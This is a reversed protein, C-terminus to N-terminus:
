FIRGVDVGSLQDERLGAVGAHASREAGSRGRAESGPRGGPSARPPSAPGPSFTRLAPPVQARAPGGRQAASLAAASCRLRGASGARGSCSARRGLPGPSVFAGPRLGARPRESRSPGGPPPPPLRPRRRLCEIFPRARRAPPSPAARVGGFNAAQARRLSPWRPGRRVLAGGSGCGPRGLLAAGSGAIHPPAPCRAGRDRPAAAEEEDARGSIALAAENAYAAPTRQLRALRRPGRSIAM